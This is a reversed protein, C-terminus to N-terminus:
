HSRGVVVKVLRHVPHVLRPKGNRGIDVELQPEEHTEVGEKVQEVNDEQLLM